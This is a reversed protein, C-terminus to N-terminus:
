FSVRYKTVYGNTILNAMDFVAKSNRMSVVSMADDRGCYHHFQLMECRSCYLFDVCDMRSTLEAQCNLLGAADMAHSEMEGFRIGGGGTRGTRTEVTRQGSTSHTYHQKDFSMQTMQWVRCIGWSALVPVESGGVMSRENDDTIIRDVCQGTRGDYIETESHGYVADCPKVVIRRGEGAATAGSVMEYYQGLTLRNTVSSLSMVMDFRVVNGNSDHGWPMDEDPWIKIVGKQGHYTALKDGTVPQSFRLVKVSLQGSATKTASVVTGSGDPHTACRRGSPVQVKQGGVASRAAGSSCAAREDKMQSSMVKWWRNQEMKVCEGPDPVREDSSILHSSYALYHFMGRSASGSSFIISDEYTDNANLLCVMLNEGPANDAVGADVSDLMSDLAETTVLPRSVHNPSVSSIGAGYPVMVSQPHQAAAILPRPPRDFQVYPSMVVSASYYFWAGDKDGVDPYEPLRGGDPWKCTSSSMSNVIMGNSDRRHLVGSSVSLLACHMDNNIHLTATHPSVSSSSILYNRLALLAGTTCRVFKGMCYLVWQKAGRNHQSAIELGSKLRGVMSDCLIRVVVGNCVKRVRGAEGTHPTYLRCLFGDYESLFQLREEGDTYDDDLETALDIVQCNHLTGSLGPVATTEQPQVYVGMSFTGDRASNSELWAHNSHASLPQGFSVSVLDLAASVDAPVATGDYMWPMGEHKVCPRTARIVWLYRRRTAARLLSTLVESFEEMSDVLDPEFVVTVLEITSNASAPKVRLMRPHVFHGICNEFRRLPAVTGPTTCGDFEPMVSVGSAIGGFSAYEQNCRRLTVYESIAGSHSYVNSPPSSLLPGLVRGRNGDDGVVASGADEDDPDTDEVLRLRHRERNEDM